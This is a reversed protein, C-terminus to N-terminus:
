LVGAKTAHKRMFDYAIKSYMNNNGGGVDGHNASFMRHFIKRKSNIEIEPTLFDMFPVPGTRDGAIIHVFYDVMSSIEEGWGNLDPSFTYPGMMAVSDFLGVFKINPIMDAHKFNNFSRTGRRTNRVTINNVTAYKLAALSQTIEAIVAAGRSWGILSLETCNGSVIERQIDNMVREYIVTSDHGTIGDRAGSYYFKKSDSYQSNDYFKKSNTTNIGSFSGYHLGASDKEWSGTNFKHSWTGDVVFLCM